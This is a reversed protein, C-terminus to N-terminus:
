RAAIRCWKRRNILRTWQERLVLLALGCCFLKASSIEPVATVMVDSISLGDSFDDFGACFSMPTTTATAVSTFDFNVPPNYGPQDGNAPNQLNCNTTFAGFSMSAGGFADYPANLQLTFSVDYTVGPITNLEGSVVPEVFLPGQNFPNTTYGSSFYATNYSNIAVFNSPNPVYGTENSWHYLDVLNEQAQGASSLQLLFGSLLAVRFFAPAKFAGWTNPRFEARCGAVTKIQKTM